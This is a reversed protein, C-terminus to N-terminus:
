SSLMAKYRRSVSENLGGTKCIAKYIQASQRVTRRQTKFDVAILGFRPWFGKDWEFNDILSWHLYGRVDVGALLARHIHYLSEAIYRGRQRDQADALGHETIYVPVGYKHLDKLVHYIGEPYLEWGLDSTRLNKNKGFGFAIRHHFYYNLGIFDQCNKMRDLFWHNNWWSAIGGVIRHVPENIAAEFYVNNTAIGVESTPYAAKLVGYAQVHATLLHNLVQLYAIPNRRQPPWIGLFYSNSAYIEPENLTIWHTVYEGVADAVRSVYRAFYETTKPNAWGGMDELWCPLPWHWLTVFPEMGLSRVFKLVTRYHALAKEDFEGEKPEIRSWEISFRTANHGLSKALRFDERFRHFHDAANGSIFQQKGYQKIFGQDCLDSLRRDSREWRTWSNHLGGEVQHSSTSAGWLFDKPFQFPEVM